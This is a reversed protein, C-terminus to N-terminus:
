IMERKQHDSINEFHRKHLLISLKKEFCLYSTRTECTFAHVNKIRWPKNYPVGNDKLNWIAKLLETANRNKPDIFSNKHTGFCSKFTAFYSGHYANRSNSSELVAKYFISSGQCNGQLPYHPQVYKTWSSTTNPALM